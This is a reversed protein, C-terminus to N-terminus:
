LGEDMDASRADGTGLTVAADNAGGHRMMPMGSRFGPGQIRCQAINATRSNGSRRVDLVHKTDASVCHCLVPCTDPYDLM